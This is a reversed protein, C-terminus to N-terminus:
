NFFFFSELRLQSVVVGSDIWVLSSLLTTGRKSEDKTLISLYLSHLPIVLKMFNLFIWIKHSKPEKNGACRYYCGRESNVMTMGWIICLNGTKTQLQNQLNPHKHRFSWFLISSRSPHICLVCHFLSLVSISYKTKPCQLNMKGCCVKSFRSLMCEIEYTNIRFLSCCWCWFVTDVFM